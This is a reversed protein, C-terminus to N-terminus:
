KGISVPTLHDLLFKVDGTDGNLRVHIKGAHHCVVSGRRGVYKPNVEEACQPAPSVEVESGLPFKFQAEAATARISNAGFVNTAPRVDSKSYSAAKVDALAAYVTSGDAMEIRGALSDHSKLIGTRGEYKVVQGNKFQM